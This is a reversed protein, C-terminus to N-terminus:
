SRSSVQSPRPDQADAISSLGLLHARAAGVVLHSGCVLVAAGEGLMLDLRGLLHPDDVSGFRENVLASAPPEVGRAPAAWWLEAGLEALSSLMRDADKDAHCGFLVVSPKPVAGDHVMAVVAEIAAPNHAVDLCVSGPGVGHVEARGPLRADDLDAAVVRADLVRAAALAVAANQRQHAGALGRPPEPRPEVMRLPSGRETAVDRLVAEVTASQVASVVPVGAAFVGAKNRAIDAVTPGLVAAHDMAISTVAVVTASVIATADDRGGLGAEIVMADVAEEAFIHLAALTLLEFFSVREPGQAEARLVAELGSELRPVSVALGAVRVRETMRHLHPSSYVGTRVGHRALASEIMAATSGKGNTGVIHATAITAGPRGLREYVARIRDLGLTVGLDRRSSLVDWASPPSM